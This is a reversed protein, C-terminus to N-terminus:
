VSKRPGAQRLLLISPWMGAWPFPQQLFFNRPLCIQCRPLGPPHVAAQRPFGSFGERVIPIVSKPFLIESFTYGQSKRNLSTLCREHLYNLIVNQGDLKGQLNKIDMDHFRKAREACLMAAPHRRSARDCRMRTDSGQYGM